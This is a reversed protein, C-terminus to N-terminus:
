AGFVYATARTGVVFNGSSATLTIRNINAGSNWFGATEDVFITGTATGTPCSSSCHVGKSLAGPTVAYGPVVIEISGGLGSTASAGPLFGTVMSTQALSETASATAGNGRVRQVYYSAASDNNFRMQVNISQAVTDGRGHVYVVLHAYSTPLGTFDISSTAAGLTTDAVAGVGKRFEAATVIDNTVWGSAWTGAM